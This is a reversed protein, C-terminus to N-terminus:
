DTDGPDDRGAGLSEMRRHHSVRLQSLVYASPRGGKGGCSGRGNTTSKATPAQSRNICRSPAPYLDPIWARLISRVGSAQDRPTTLWRALWPFGNGNTKNAHQVAPPSENGRARWVARKDPYGAMRLKQRNWSDSRVAQAEDRAGC